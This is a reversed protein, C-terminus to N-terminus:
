RNGKTNNKLWEDLTKQIKKSVPKGSTKIGNKPWERWRPDGFPKKEENM